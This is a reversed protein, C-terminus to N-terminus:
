TLSESLQRIKELDPNGSSIEKIIERLEPKELDPNGFVSTKLVAEFTPRQSPDPHAMSNIITDIPSKEEDILKNDFNSGFDYIAQLKQTEFKPEDLKSKGNFVKNIVLGVSWVDSKENIIRKDDINEFGRSIVEPSAYAQTSELKSDNFGDQTRKASGFDSSVLKGDSNILSNNFKVDGIIMNKDKQLYVMSDLMDKVLLKDLLDKVKPSIVNNEKLEGIKGIATDGPIKAEEMIMYLEDNDGKVSGKLNIIKDNNEDEGMAHSHNRIETVMDHRKEPELLTKVIVTDNEDNPNKYKFIGGLGGKAIYQPSSYTKNNLSISVPVDIENLKIKESSAKDPLSENMGSVISDVLKQKNKPLSDYLSPPQKLCNLGMFFEKNTPLSTTLSYKKAIDYVKSNLEKLLIKDQPTKTTKNNIRTAESLVPILKGMNETYKSLEKEHTEHYKDKIAISSSVVEKLESNTSLKLALKMDKGLNNTIEKGLDKARSYIKDKSLTKDLEPVLSSPNFNNVLELIDTRNLDKIKTKEPKNTYETELLINKDNNVNDDGDLINNIVRGNDQIHSFDNNTNVNNEPVDFVNKAKEKIEDKSINSNDFVELVDDKMEQVSSLDKPKVDEIKKVKTEDKVDEIPQKSGMKDIVSNEVKDIKKSEPIERHGGLRVGSM